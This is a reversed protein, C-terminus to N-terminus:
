GVLEASFGERRIAELIEDPALEDDEYEVVVCADQRNAAAGYVSGIGCLARELRAEDRPSRLGGVCVKVSSM